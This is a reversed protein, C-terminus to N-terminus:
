NKFIYEAINRNFSWVWRPASKLNSLVFKYDKTLINNDFTYSGIPIDLKFENINM